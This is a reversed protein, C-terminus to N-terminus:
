SPREGLIMGVMGGLLLEFSHVLVNAFASLKDDHACYIGFGLIVILFISAGFFRGISFRKEPESGAGGSGDETSQKTYFFAM